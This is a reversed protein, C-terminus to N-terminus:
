ADRGLREENHSIVTVRKPPDPEYLGMHYADFESYDIAWFDERDLDDAQIGTAIARDRAIGLAADLNAAEVLEVDAKMGYGIIFRDM